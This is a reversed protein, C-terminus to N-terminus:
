VAEGRSVQVLASAEDPHDGLTAARNVKEQGCRRCRYRLVQEDGRVELGVPDLLGGCAAARDGPVEDVHLSRLCRPCHDRVIRGGIPVDRGCHACVFAEDLRTPNKAVRAGDERAMAARLLRKGPWTVAEDPLEVGRKRGYAVLAARLSEDGERDLAEGLRKIAGRSTARAFM